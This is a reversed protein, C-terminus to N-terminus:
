IDGNVLTELVGVGDGILSRYVSPAYGVKNIYYAIVNGNFDDLANEKVLAIACGGFGAGTMRAGVVNHDTKCYETITDLENGSVEYLDRLSDHSAFMLRGFEELDNNSLAVAALKVRDNEEIVHKARKYIVEDRILHKYKDFTTADIDCLHNIDLERQLAKLATHCERV